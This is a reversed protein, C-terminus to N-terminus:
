FGDSQLHFFPLALNGHRIFPLVREWYGIFTEGLEYSLPVRNSRMQGQEFLDLVALLLLPKHPARYSTASAWRAPSKDTRLRAFRRAYYQCDRREM